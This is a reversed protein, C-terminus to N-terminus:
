TLDAVFGHDEFRSGIDLLRPESWPPGSLQVAVAMGDRDTAIPLTLSPLGALNQPLTSPMTADLLSMRRGDVVVHDPDSVLSPGSAGVVNVVIDATRFMHALEVCFAETEARAEM